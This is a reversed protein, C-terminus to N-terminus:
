SQSEQSESRDLTVVVRNAEVEVVVLAAGQELMEGRTIVDVREGEIRATGSPRLSSLATGKKNAFRDIGPEQAAGEVFERDPGSLMFMRGIATNPLIRLSFYVTVPVVVASSGLFLHGTMMDVQTYALFISAVFSIAALISLIGLSPFFVEAIAFCLGLLSLFILFGIGVAGSQPGDVPERVAEVVAQNGQLAIIRIPTDKSVFEGEALADYREGNVEMMGIPRLDTIAVGQAGVLRSRAADANSGARSFQTATGTAPAPAPQLIRNFVPIHPTLKWLVVAGVLVSMTLLLMQWLNVLLIDHQAATAPLFFSQQSLVLGAIIFVFGSLGFVLMGPFLFIEAAVMGIGAFFLLIDIWSALGMLYSGFMGLALLLVGLVGPVAFGPTKLELVLLLFGFVFLLPKMSDLWAVAGESWTEDRFRVSEFSEHLEERVLEEISTVTGSSFGLREAESATLSLPGPGLLRPEGAFQVGRAKLDQLESAELYETAQQFGDEDERNAEFIQMERDVMAEAVKILGPSIGPKRELLARIDSRLSSILKRRVDADPIQQIGGGPVMMVPQIAGMASGPAMYIKDCALAIYAGASKAQHRVFAVVQVEERSLRSILAEIERTSIIAGGPTNIDLIVVRAGTATAERLTSQVMYVSNKGVEGDIKVVLVLAEAPDDPATPQARVPAALAILGLAACLLLRPTSFISRTM